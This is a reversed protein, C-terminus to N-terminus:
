ANLIQKGSHWPTKKDSFVFSLYHQMGTAMGDLSFSCHLCTITKKLFKRFNIKELNMIKSLLHEAAIHNLVCLINPELRQMHKPICHLSPAYVFLSLDKQKPFFFHMDSKKKIVINDQIFTTKTM